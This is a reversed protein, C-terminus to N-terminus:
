PRTRGIQLYQIENGHPHAYLMEKRVSQALRVARSLDQLKFVHDQPIAHALYKSHRLEDLSEAREYVRFHSGFKFGTKAVAGRDRIDSYVQLKLPFGGEIGAALEEFEGPSVEEDNAEISLVGRYALYAAEVLSLQLRDEDLPKGYFGQEHLGHSVWPDWIVVRDEILSGHGRPVSRTEGGEIETTQAEYFTIDSEEDVIALMLRKRTGEAARVQGALEELPLPSRESVVLVNWEAPTRGPAGGRPYVRLDPVGPQLYYGRERLDKYVIYLAEFKPIRHAAEKFLDEFSLEQDDLAVTIKDRYALYAAEVLSLELHDERPKGYYSQGYLENKAGPGMVVRDEQLTGQM